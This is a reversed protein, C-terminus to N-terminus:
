RPTKILCFKCFDFQKIFSGAVTCFCSFTMECIISNVALIKNCFNQWILKNSFFKVWFQNSSFFQSTPCHIGRKEVSHCFYSQKWSFIASIARWCGKILMKPTGKYTFNYFGFFGFFDFKKKKKAFFVSVSNGFVSVSSSVRTSHVQFFPIKSENM